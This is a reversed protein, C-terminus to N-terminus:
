SKVSVRECHDTPKQIKEDCKDNGCGVACFWHFNSAPGKPFIHARSLTAAGPKATSSAAADRSSQSGARHHMPPPAPLEFSCLAQAVHVTLDLVALAHIACSAARLALM